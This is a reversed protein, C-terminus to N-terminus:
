EEHRLLHKRIWFILPLNVMKVRFQVRVFHKPVLQSLGLVSFLSHLLLKQLRLLLMPLSLLFNLIQLLLHLFYILRVRPQLPVSSFMFLLKLLQFLDSFVLPKRLFYVVRLNQLHEVRLLDPKLLCVPRFDDSLIKSPVVFEQFVRLGLGQAVLYDLGLSMLAFEWLLHFFQAVLEPDHVLIVRWDCRNPLFLTHVQKFHALWELLFILLQSVAALLHNFGPEHHILREPISLSLKALKHLLFPVAGNAILRDTREIFRRNLLPIKTGSRRSHGWRLFDAPQRSNLVFNILVHLQWPKLSLKLIQFRSLFHQNRLCLVRLKHDRLMCTLRKRRQGLRLLVKQLRFRLRPKAWAVCALRDIVDPADQVRRILRRKGPVSVALQWLLQLSARDQHLRALVVPLQLQQARSFVGQNFELWDVPELLTSSM